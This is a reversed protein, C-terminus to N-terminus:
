IFDATDLDLNLATDLLFVYDAGTEYHGNDNGDVILFTNGGLDGSDPTFLIAHSRKLAHNIASAMDDDFSDGSLAGSSVLPDIGTVALSLFLHDVGGFDVAFLTDCGAGTSETALNFWFVDNGAGGALYDAGLGGTLTDDGVLADIYDNGAGVRIYDAGNTGIVQYTGDTEGEADIVFSDASGNHQGTVVLTEGAAVASDEFFVDYHHADAFTVQEVGAITGANIFIDGTYAGAILLTDFGTGGDFHDGPGLLDPGGFVATDDGGGGHVTDIGTRPEFIDAAQTGTVVDNGMGGLVSYGGDLEAALNLTLSDGVGLLFANVTGGAANANGDSFTLHYSHGGALVVQEIHQFTTANCVLANAGTYDGDLILTDNGRGGNLTDDTNLAAGMRFRDNGRDGFALDDTGGLSLVFRDGGNGGFLYDRGASGIFKFRGDKEDTGDFRFNPNAAAGGTVASADVILRADAAVMANHAILDYDFAGTLTLREVGTMTTAGFVLPLYNGELVIEDNGSGGDINDLAGLAAGMLFRDDGDLGEATDDGGQTLDFNDDDGTGTLNDDGSTGIFDAM